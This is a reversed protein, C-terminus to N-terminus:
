EAFEPDRFVINKPHTFCERRKVSQRGRTPALVYLPVQLLYRQDPYFLLRLRVLFDTRNEAGIKRMLNCKLRSAEKSAQREPQACMQRRALRMEIHNLRVLRQKVPPTLMVRSTLWMHIADRFTQLTHRNDLLLVYNPSFTGELAAIPGPAGTILTPGEPLHAEWSWVLLHHMDPFHLVNVKDPGGEEEGLSQLLATIGIRFYPDPMYGTVNM